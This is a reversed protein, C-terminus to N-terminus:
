VLPLHSPLNSGGVLVTPRKDWVEQMQLEFVSPFYM